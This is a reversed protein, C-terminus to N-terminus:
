VGTERYYIIQSGLYEFRFPIHLLHSLAAKLRERQDIRVFFLIFGGGGAGLIKGGLAGNRIATEYIDDILANSVQDSLTKKLAWGEHLLRGFDLLDGDDNLVDIACGTLNSLGNLIDKKRSLNDIKEKEIDTAFRTTGTFFLMLHDQLLDLREKSITLPTVEIRQDGQFTIKNFGGFAAAVQDQSGVSEKIMNQEIHIAELSLRKKSIIKGSLGYLAHLLGVTFASSSGLGARAPLDGDHHLELGRTVNMFRFTERVAPHIIEDIDNVHEYKSYVIRHKYSFFPPLHRCNIYCYKDITTSLVSGGSHNYWAPFDSGGGFFSIRFPTRTIIM